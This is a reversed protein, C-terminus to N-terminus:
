KEVRVTGFLDLDDMHCLCFFAFSVEWPFTRQM